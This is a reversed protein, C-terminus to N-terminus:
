NPTYEWLDNNFYTNIGYPLGNGPLGSGGGYYVKDGISFVAGALRQIFVSKQTWTDAADDYLWTEAGLIYGKNNASIGKLIANQIPLSGKKTWTDSPPDYQWCKADNSLIYIKGNVVFGSGGSAYVGPFDAKRTWSDMSPDYEWWDNLGHVDFRGLGAYGKSDVGFASADRRPGGPFDHISTWTNNLPDYSFLLQTSGNNRTDGTGVYAKGNIVMSFALELGIPLSSKKTWTNSIPDYANLDNFAEGNATGLGIYGSSGISFGIGNVRGNNPPADVYPIDSKRVWNGPLVDYSNVSTTTHGNVTISIKGPTVGAPVIVVMQSDGSMSFVSGSVGNFKVVNKSAATDFHSGTISIYNNAALKSPDFGTIALQSVNDTKKCCIIGTMLLMV